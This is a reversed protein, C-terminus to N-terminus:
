KCKSKLFQSILTAKRVEEFYEKPLKYYEENGIERWEFDDWEVLSVPFYRLKIGKLFNSNMKVYVSHKLGFIKGNSSFTIIPFQNKNEELTFKSGSVVKEIKKIDYEFLAVDKLYKKKRETFLNKLKKIDLDDDAKFSWGSGAVQRILEGRASDSDYIENFELENWYVNDDIDWAKWAVNTFTDIAEDDNTGSYLTKVRTTTSGMKGMYNNLVWDNGDKVWEGGDPIQERETVRWYGNQWVAYVERNIGAGDGYLVFQQTFGKDYIDKVNNLVGVGANYLEWNFKVFDLDGVFVNNYEDWEESDFKEFIGKNTRYSDLGDTGIYCTGDKCINLIVNKGDLGIAKLFKKGDEFSAIKEEYCKGFAVDDKLNFLILVEDFKNEINDKLPILGGQAIEYSVIVLFLTLLVISLLKGTTWDTSAKKKM